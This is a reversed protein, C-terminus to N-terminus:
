EDRPDSDYDGDGEVHLIDEYGDPLNDEEENETDFVWEHSRFESAATSEHKSILPFLHEGTQLGRGFAWLARDVTGRDLKDHDPGDISGLIGEFFNVYEKYEVWSTPQKELDGPSQKFTKMARWVHQDIIPYENPRLIHMLFIPLKLRSNLIRNDQLYVFFKYACSSRNKFNLCNHLFTVDTRYKEFENVKPMIYHVMDLEVGIEATSESLLWGEKIRGFKWNLLAIISDYLEENNQCEEIKDLYYRYFHVPYKKTDYRTEWAELFKCLHCM